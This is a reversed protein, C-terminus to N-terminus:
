KRLWHNKVTVVVHPVLTFILWPFFIMFQWIAVLLLVKRQTSFYEYGLYRRVFQLQEDSIYKPADSFLQNAKRSIRSFYPDENGILEKKSFSDFVRIGRPIVQTPLGLDVCYFVASTWDESIAFNRSSAMKYFEEFYDKRFPDGLTIVKFGAEEFKAPRDGVMDAYYFCITIPSYKDSLSQLYKISSEDDIGVVDIGGAYHCPFFITGRSCDLKRIDLKNKQYIWPHITPLTFVMRSPRSPLVEMVIPNNTIHLRFKKRNNVIFPDVFSDFAVGHDSTFLLPVFKPIHFMRRYTTGRGYIESSWHFRFNIQKKLELLKINGM